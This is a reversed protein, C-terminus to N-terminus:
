RSALQWRSLLALVPVLSRSLVAPTTRRGTAHPARRRKTFREIFPYHGEKQKLGRLALATRGSDLMVGRVGYDNMQVETDDLRLQSKQHRGQDFRYM